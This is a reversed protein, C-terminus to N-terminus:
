AFRSHHEKQAVTLQTFAYNFNTKDTTESQITLTLLTGPETSAPVTIRVSGNVAQNTDLRVSRPSFGSVFGKDGQVLINFDSAVGSNNVVFPIDYVEGPFLSTLSGLLQVRSASVTNLSTSLRQLSRGAGDEGNLMVLFQDKPLSNSVAWFRDPSATRNLPLKQLITGQIDTLYLEKFSMSPFSKLGTVLVIMNAPAGARPRGSIKMIGPHRGGVEEVFDYALDVLSDGTVRLSFELTSTVVLTWAGMKIPSTLSIRELNGAVQSSAIPSPSAFGTYSVGDPNTLKFQPKGTVYVSVNSVATDILFTFAQESTPPTKRVQLLTVTSFSVSDEIIKTVSTLESKTSSIVQGGSALAIDQYLSLGPQPSQRRTRRGHGTGSPLSQHSASGSKHGPGPLSGHSEARHRDSTGSHLRYVRGVHRREASLYGSHLHATRRRGVETESIRRRIRRRPDSGRRAGSSSRQECGRSGTHTGCGRSRTGSDSRSSQLQRIDASRRRRSFADTLLFTVKSKTEQCLTLVRSKLEYDKAVADTFVYIESDPPTSLLALQVGSLCMEPTDGGGNAMLKQIAAKFEEADATILAPGFDPDNFPVLVYVSPENLTGKKNEIISFVREKAAEIDNSMSGTTDIVFSITSPPELDLFKVFLADDVSERIDQLVEITATFALKAADQHLHFQPSMAPSTTDKNIGPRPPDTGGGGHACKGDPVASDPYGSTLKASKLITQLIPNCGVSAVCLGCTKETTGAITGLIENHSTLGKNTSDVNGLEIWNSHSYFDQLTHLLVGLNVRAANYKEKIINAITQKKKELILLKAEKIKEAESHSKADNPFLFDVENNSRIIEDLAMKFRKTSVPAGYYLKFLEEAVLEGMSSVNLSRGKQQALDQFVKLAMSLVGNRTISEHTKTNELGPQTSDLNPLFAQASYLLFLALVLVRMPTAM